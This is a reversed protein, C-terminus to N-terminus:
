LFNHLPKPLPQSWLQPGHNTSAVILHVMAVMMFIRLTSSLLGSRVHMSAGTPPPAHYGDPNGASDLNPTWSSRTSVSCGSDNSSGSSSNSPPNRQRGMEVMNFCLQCLMMHLDTGVSRIVVTNDHKHCNGCGSLPAPPVLPVPLHGRTLTPSTGSLNASELSPDRLIHGHPMVSDPTTIVHEPASLSANMLDHSVVAPQSLRPIIEQILARARILPLVRPALIGREPHTLDEVTLHKLDSLRDIGGKTIIDDIIDGALSSTRELFDRVARVQVSRDVARSLENQDMGSGPKLPPLAELEASWSIALDLDSGRASVVPMALASDGWGDHRLEMNELRLNRLNALRNVPDEEDSRKM